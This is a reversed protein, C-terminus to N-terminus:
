EEGEDEYDWEDFDSWEMGNDLDHGCVCCTPLYYGRGLNSGCDECFTHKFDHAM